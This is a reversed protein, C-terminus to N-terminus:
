KALNEPLREDKVEMNETNVEINLGDTLAVQFVIQQFMQELQVVSARKIYFGKPMTIKVNLENM